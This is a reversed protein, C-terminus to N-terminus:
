RTAWGWRGTPPEPTGCSCCPWSAWFVSATARSCHSAREESTSSGLRCRHSWCWAPRRRSSRWGQTSHRTASCTRCSSSASSRRGAMLSGFVILGATAAVWFIRRGAVELDFLPNQSPALPPVFGRGAAAPAHRSGCCPCRTNPVPAFNISLVVAGVLVVSLFGGLNDVPETTENVHSPVFVLAMALAVGRGPAPHHPVGLGVLPRRAAMGIGATRARRHCRRARVLPRDVDDEGTRVVACHHAGAHDPVGDRGRGRGDTACGGPSGGSPAWAALLCAPISLSVGVILLLKRGYRDGVAGLYLVSAALGLSYGVAILDLTTQSADFAEGIDPLAVNAVALNLNAVAAVLILAILVLPARDPADGKLFTVTAVGTTDAGPM